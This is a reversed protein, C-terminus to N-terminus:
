SSHTRIAGTYLASNDQRTDDHSSCLTAWRYRAATGFIIVVEPNRREQICLWKIM